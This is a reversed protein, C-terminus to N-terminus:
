AAAGVAHQVAIHPDGLGRQRQAESLTGWRRLLCIAAKREKWDESDLMQIATPAAQEGLRHMQWFAERALLRNHCGKSSLHQRLEPLMQAGRQKCLIKLAAKRLIPGGIEYIGAALDGAAEPYGRALNWMNVRMPETRHERTHRVDWPVFGEKGSASGLLEAELVDIGAQHGARALTSAVVARTAPTGSALITDLEDRGDAGHELLTLVAQKKAQNPGEAITHVCGKVPVLVSHTTARHPKSMDFAADYMAEDGTQLQQLILAAADDPRIDCLTHMARRRVWTPHRAALLSQVADYSAADSAGSLAHLSMTARHYLAEKEEVPLDGAQGCERVTAVLRERCGPIQLVRSMMERNMWGTDLRHPAWVPRSHLLRLVPELARADALECLALMSVHRVWKREDKLAGCLEEVAAAGLATLEQVTDDDRAGSAARDLLGQIQEAFDAPLQHDMFHKEVIMLEKQLRQRGRQLRGKVVTVSLDLYMAVDAYSLGDLYYLCLVDRYGRKVRELSRQVIQRQQAREIEDHPTDFDALPAALGWASSMKRSRIRERVVGRALHRVIGRLWHGFRDPDKLRDLDRYAILFADQAVDQALEFDALISIAMGYAYKEHRRVLQTFSVQDGAQATEVLDADTTQKMLALDHTRHGPTTPIRVRRRGSSAAARALQAVEERVM